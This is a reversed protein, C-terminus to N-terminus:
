TTMNYQNIKELSATALVKTRHDKLGQYSFVCKNDFDFSNISSKHAESVNM